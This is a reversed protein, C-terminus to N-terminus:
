SSPKEKSDISSSKSKKGFLGSISGMFSPGSDKKPDLEIDGAAARDKLEQLLEEAFRVKMPITQRQSNQMIKVKTTAESINLGQFEAEELPIVFEKYKEKVYQQKEKNGKWYDQKSLSM